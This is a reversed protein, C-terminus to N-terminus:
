TLRRLLRLFERRERPNLPALTADSIAPGCAIANRAVQRGRDTLSLVRVRADNPDVGVVIYGKADLRDIVGKITAIDMATLRGLRNQTLSGHQFLKVLASFQTATLDDTIMEGFILAHRQAAQRLVFGVQDELVYPAPTPDREIEGETEAAAPRRGRTRKTM